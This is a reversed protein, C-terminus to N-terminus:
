RYFKPSYIFSKLISVFFNSYYQLIHLISNSITFAGLRHQSSIKLLIPFLEELNSQLLTIIQSGPKDSFEMQKTDCQSELGSRFMVLVASYSSYIPLAPGVLGDTRLLKVPAM